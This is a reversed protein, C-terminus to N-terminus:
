TIVINKKLALKATSYRQPFIPNNLCQKRVKKLQSILGNEWSRSFIVIIRLPILFCTSLLPLRGIELFSMIDTYIEMEVEVGVKMKAETDARM